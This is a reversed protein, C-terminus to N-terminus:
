AILYGRCKKAGCLCKMKLSKSTVSPTKSSSSVDSCNEPTCVSGNESPNSPQCRSNNSLSNSESCDDPLDCSTSGDCVFNAEDGEDGDRAGTMQYDFTLEEGKCINRAAFLALRPLKINMCEIFACRVTLNPDCSHNVFHSVNGMQLADVTYHAEGDFDLDFLYTMRQKDYLQGRKEAGEFTIIEGLYEMVFTGKPIRQLTKVGWGRGNKTRFISLPVKRGLQVVRFPCSPGCACASNCEFIAHGPPVLLRKNISYPIRAGSRVACCSNHRNIWCPELEASRLSKDCSQVAELPACECGVVAKTPLHVDEDPVYDCIPQFDIPPCELDVNNEVRLPAEKCYVSNLMAEFASLSEKLATLSEATPRKRKRAKPHAGEVYSVCHNSLQYFRRLKSEEPPFHELFLSLLETPSIRSLPVAEKLRDLVESLQKQKGVPEKVAPYPSKHSLFENILKECGALNEEPEWTNFTPPWGEWKVFYYNKGMINSKKLIAEVVYESDSSFTLVDNQCLTNLVKYVVRLPFRTLLSELLGFAAEDSLKIDKSVQVDSVLTRVNPQVIQAQSFIFRRNTDM